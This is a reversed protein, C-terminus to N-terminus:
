LDNDKCRHPRWVAEAEKGDDDWRTDPKGRMKSGDIRIFTEGLPDPHVFVTEADVLISRYPRTNIIGVPKGCKRCPRFTDKM